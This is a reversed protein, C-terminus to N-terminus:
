DRRGRDGEAERKVAPANPNKSKILHPPRGSSYRSDKRKRSRARAGTQKSAPAQRTRLGYDVLVPTACHGEDPEGRRQLGDGPGIEGAPPAPAEGFHMQNAPVIHGGMCNPCAVSIKLDGLRALREANTEISTTVDRLTNPCKYKLASM